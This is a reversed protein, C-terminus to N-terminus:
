RCNGGCSLCKGSQQVHQEIGQQCFEEDETTVWRTVFIEVKRDDTFRDCGLTEM